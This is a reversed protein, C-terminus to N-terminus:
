QFHPLLLLTYNEFEDCMIIMKHVHGALSLSQLTVHHM